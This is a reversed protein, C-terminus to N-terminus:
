NEQKYGSRLTQQIELAKKEDQQQHLLANSTPDSLVTAFIPWDNSLEIVFNLVSASNEAYELSERIYSSLYSVDDNNLTKAHFAKILIETLRTGIRNKYAFDSDM